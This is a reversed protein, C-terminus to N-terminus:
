YGEEWLYYPRSTREGIAILKRPRREIEDLDSGRILVWDPGPAAVFSRLEEETELVRARRGCYFAIAPEFRPFIGLPEDPPVERTVVDSVPRLSRFPELRPVLVVALLFALTATGVSLSAVAPVPRGNRALVWGGAAGLALIALAAATGGALEPVVATLDPWRAFISPTAVAAVSAIAALALLPGELWRRRGPWIELIRDVSAGVLLAMAPFMPLVYVDRKAPSVSFFVITVVAWCGAFLANRRRTGELEKWAVFAATPLFVTWPFYNAATAGLYYHWPHLHHWPNVYRTVTQRLVLEDLYWVGARVVAPVLWALVVGAYVLLGPALRLRRLGERDRTVALFALISLLAPLLAVPGKTITGLGASVWFLWVWGERGEERSRVWAWVALAVFFTLLMDIQGVRGQWVVKVSTAFAAAAIWGARESFLRRGLAFALLTTGIAALASPLRAATEGFGGTVEAAVEIAWFLLPPKQSYPEGNLRPLLPDHAEAMEKAVLAYRPEDPNWLSYAGLRPLFIASAALGIAIWPVLRHRGRMEASRGPM